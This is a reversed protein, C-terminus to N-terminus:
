APREPASTPAVQAWCMAEYEAAAEWADADLLSALEGLHSRDFMAGPRAVMDDVVARMRRAYGEVCGEESESGRRQRCQWEAPM